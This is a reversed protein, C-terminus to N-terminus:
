GILKSLRIAIGLDLLKEEKSLDCELIQEIKKIRYALTNRHLFLQEATKTRIGMNNILVHLTKLLETENERDYDELKGISGRVFSKLYARDSSNIVAQELCYKEIFVIEEGLAKGIKLADEADKYAKAIDTYNNIVGSVGVNLNLGFKSYIYKRVGSFLESLKGYGNKPLMCIFNDSENIITCELKLSGAHTRIASFIEHKIFLNEKERKKEAFEGFGNIDIVAMIVPMKQWKLYNARIEVESSSKINGMIIDTFLNTDMISHKHYSTERNSLELAMITETHEIVVMDEEDLSMGALVSVALYGCVENHIKIAKIYFRMEGIQKVAAGDIDRILNTITTSYYDTIDSSFIDTSPFVFIDKDYNDILLVPRRLLEYMTGGINRLGGESIEMEFFKKRVKESYDLLKNQENVVVKMLANILVIFPMDDPIHIVPVGLEDALEIFKDPLEGIFRTKIMMGASGAKKLCEVIKCLAESENDKISYGTTVLLENKKLWPTIDPIEMTDICTIKRGTGKAGAILKCDELAKLKLADEITFAM